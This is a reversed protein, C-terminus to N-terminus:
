PFNITFHWNLLSRLRFNSFNRFGYGLRKILKLKNNIGEVTGSTTRGDFYGVVEGFWRVMTGISKPFYSLADHMWDLLKIISDGWSVTSEFIDRFDEKLKHMKALTPSVAQAAKLKEKQQENLSDENKIFSYKSKNLGALIRDRESKNELSMAARKESKRMADLEDNVQKMVHFRDATINANPMLEEVLSKYFSWLDISVEEIKELVQTGWGVLVERIEEM